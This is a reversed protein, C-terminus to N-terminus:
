NLKSTLRIDGKATCCCPLIEGENVLALPEEHYEVEGEKLKVRCSGCYGAKCQYNVDHGTRLLGDLISEGDLLVFQTLSTTINM